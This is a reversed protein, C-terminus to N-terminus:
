EVITVDVADSPIEEVNQLFNKVSEDNYIVEAGVCLTYADRVLYISVENGVKTYKVTTNQTTQGPILCKVKVQTATNTSVNATLAYSGVSYGRSGVTTYLM